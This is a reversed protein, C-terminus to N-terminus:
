KSRYKTIQSYFVKITDGDTTQVSYSNDYSSKDIVTGEQTGSSNTFTVESNVQIDGSSSPTFGDSGHQFGSRQHAHSSHHDHDVNPDLNWHSADHSDYHGSDVHHHADGGTAASILSLITQWM